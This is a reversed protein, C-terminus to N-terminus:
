TRCKQTMVSMGLMKGNKITAFGSIVTYALIGFVVVM